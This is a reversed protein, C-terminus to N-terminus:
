RGLDMKTILPGLKKDISGLWEDAGTLDPNTGLWGSLDRLFELASEGAYGIRRQRLDAEWKVNAREASTQRRAKVTDPNHTKCYRHVLGDVTGRDSEAHSTVAKKGCTASRPWSGVYYMYVAECLLTERDEAGCRTCRRWLPLVLVSEIASEKRGVGQLNWLHACRENTM